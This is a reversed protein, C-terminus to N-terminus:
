GMTGKMRDAWLTGKGSSLKSLCAGTLNSQLMTAKMTTTKPGGDTEISSVSGHASDAKKSPEDLLTLEKDFIVRDVM